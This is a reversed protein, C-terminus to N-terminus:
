TRVAPLCSNFHDPSVDDLDTLQIVAKVGVLKRKLADVSSAYLM